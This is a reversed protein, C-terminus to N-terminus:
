KYNDKRNCKLLVGELFGSPAMRYTPAHLAHRPSSTGASVTKSRPRSRRYRLAQSTHSLQVGLAVFSYKFVNLSTRM